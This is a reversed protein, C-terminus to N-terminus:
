SFLTKKENESLHDENIKMSCKMGEFSFQGWLTSDFLSTSLSSVGPLNTLGNALASVTVPQWGMAALM